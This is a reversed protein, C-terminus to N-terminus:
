NYEGFQMEAHLETLFRLWDFGRGPDEKRGPSVDAHAVINGVSLSPYTRILTAVVATLSQYQAEEFKSAVDGELEIGMSFRNCGSRGLWSSHGAHWAQQDFGVFQHVEGQRDILAHASVKLGALDAFSAHEAVDLVGTFLRMPAGTGYEGEPLSICHLVILEPEVSIPRAECHESAHWTAGVVRHQVVSLRQTM